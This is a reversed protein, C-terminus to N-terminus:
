QVRRIQFRAFRRIGIPLVHEDIFTSFLPSLPSRFYSYLEAFLLSPLCWFCHCALVCFDDMSPRLFWGSSRCWFPFFFGFGACFSFWSVPWSEATPTGFVKFISWALGIEGRDGNFLTERTWQAGPYGVRLYKPILFPKVQQPVDHSRPTPSTTASTRRSDASSTREGGRTTDEDDCSHSSCNSSSGSSLDDSIL